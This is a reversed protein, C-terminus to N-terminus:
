LSITVYLELVQLLLDGVDSFQGGGGNGSSAMCYPYNSLVKALRDVYATIEAPTQTHASTSILIVHQATLHRLM